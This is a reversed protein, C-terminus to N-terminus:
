VLTWAGVVSLAVWQAPNSGPNLLILRLSNGQILATATGGAATVSAGVRISDSVYAQVQIGNASDVYFDFFGSTNLTEGEPLTLVVLGGAGTNTFVKGSDFRNDLNYPGTKIVPFKQGLLPGDVSLGGRNGSNNAFDSKGLSVGGLSWFFLFYNGDPADPQGSSLMVGSGVGFDTPIIQLGLSANDTNDFVGVFSSAALSAEPVTAVLLGLDTLSVANPFAQNIVFGQQSIRMVGSTERLLEIFFGLLPIQRNNLLAAPGSDGAGEDQGLVVYDDSDLSAGNRAGKINVFPPSAGGPSSYTISGQGESM